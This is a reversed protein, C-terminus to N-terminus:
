KFINIIKYFLNVNIYLICYLIKRKLSFKNKLTFKKRFIIHQKKMLDSNLINICKSKACQLFASYIYFLQYNNLEYKLEKYKSLFKYIEDCFEFYNNNKELNYTNVYSNERQFYGYLKSETYVVNKTKSFIRPLVYMDEYIKNIPFKIGEFLEKKFLKNWLFNTILGDTIIDKLVEVNSFIKTIDKKEFSPIKEKFSIYSCVSVDSNTKILNNYLVEYMELSIYDDSDVFGIYEGTSVEIGRNRAVSVGSNKQHIVKIRNDKKKFEDCIKGSDDTSGDDILIIELNKYTQNILCLIIRNLYNSINYIPVIVSIKKM